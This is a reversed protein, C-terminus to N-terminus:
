LEKRALHAVRKTLEAHRLRAEMLDSEANLRDAEKRPDVHEDAQQQAAAPTAKAAPRQQQEAM